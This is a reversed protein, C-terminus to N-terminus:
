PASRQRNWLEVALLRVMILARDPLPKSGRKMNCKRHALILNTLSNDRIKSAPIIHDLTPSFWMNGMGRARIDDPHDMEKGCHPCIGSQLEHLTRMKSRKTRGGMNHSRSM